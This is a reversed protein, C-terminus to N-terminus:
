SSLKRPQYCYVQLTLSFPSKLFMPYDEFLNTHTDQSRTHMMHNSILRLITILSTNLCLVGNYQHLTM